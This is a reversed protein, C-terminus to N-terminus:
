IIVLTIESYLCVELFYFIKKFCKLFNEQLRNRKPVVENLIILQIAKFINYGNNRKTPMESKKIKYM